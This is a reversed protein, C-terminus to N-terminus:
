LLSNILLYYLMFQNFLKNFDYLIEKKFKIIGYKKIDNNLDISSGMYNDNINNTIHKGIYIKKNILNTIKYITYHKM